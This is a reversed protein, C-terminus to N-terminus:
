RSMGDCDDGGDVYVDDDGGDYDYTLTESLLRNWVYFM